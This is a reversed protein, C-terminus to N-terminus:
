QLYMQNYVNNVAEAYLSFSHKKNRENTNKLLLYEEEIYSWGGDEIIDHVKEDIGSSLTRFVFQYSQQTKNNRLYYYGDTNNNSGYYIIAFDCSYRIKNRDKDIMKITISSTSDKPFSYKTGQLATKLATIFQQKINKANYLIGNSPPSLILNYDFDYGSNGGKIRTILHRKGSGILHFQFKVGYNKRMEIQTRKIIQELEKRVPAYESKKVYEYM